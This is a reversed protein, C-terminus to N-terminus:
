PRRLKAVFGDVGGAIKPQPAGPTAKLNRSRTTGVLWVDGDKGFAISRLFDDDAGGFYSAYELRAGDPSIALIVGDQKGGGYTAQLADPTVPLDKSTTFGVIWILGDPGETPMLWNDNGDGGFSAAFRTTKLDPAYCAVFGDTVGALPKTVGGKTAPFDASGNSGVVYIAGDKARLLRHESFENKSGGLFAAGELRSLDASLRFVTADTAGGRRPQPGDAAAPFDDSETQGAVVVSGDPLVVVGAAHDNRAGGVRTAALIKSGDAALRVVVVDHAGAPARRYAGETTPFDSSDGYGVVVPRDEADLALGARPFDTGSGGVFTSWRLKALDPSIRTVCWDAPGGGFKPQAAGPTTPFDRSRTMTAVVLDGDKAREIGYVNREQKSGGLYTAVRWTTADRELRGIWCDGGYDGSMEKTTTDEGAYAGQVVGPTAPLGPGGAQGAIWVSGDEEPLVERMQDDAKSGLFTLAVVKFRGGDNWTPPPVDASDDGCGSGVVCGVVAIGGFFQRARLM